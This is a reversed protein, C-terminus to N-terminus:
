KRLIKVLQKRYEPNDTIGNHQQGPLTILQDGPKFLKQLKLSAGYYIVEDQDGHFITVPLNIKDMYSFTEFKYKVLFDPFFPYLEKKMDAMSYYPAQLILMRPNNEAALKAAAAAGLSYGIVIIDDQNYRTLMENYAMQVDSYFQEESSITGESKGYGRYDLIFIDYNLGTYVPAIIGWSDLAGANGHLYFILGESSDSTFLLGNLHTLDETKINIEEYDLDFEYPYDAPLKAPFFILSDQMFFLVVCLIGYGIIIVGITTIIKIM